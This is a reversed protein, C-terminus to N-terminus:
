SFSDKQMSFTNFTSFLMLYKQFFPINEHGFPDSGFNLIDSIYKIPLNVYLSSASGMIVGNVNSIFAVFICM